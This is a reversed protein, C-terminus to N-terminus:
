VRHLQQIAQGSQQAMPFGYTQCVSHGRGLLVADILIGSQINITQGDKPESFIHEYQLARGKNKNNGKLTFIYLFAIITFGHLSSDIM